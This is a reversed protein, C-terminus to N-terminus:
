SMLNYIETGSAVAACTTTKALSVNYRLRWLVLVVCGGRREGALLFLLPKGFTVLTYCHSINVM